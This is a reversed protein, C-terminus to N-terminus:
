RLYIQALLNERAALEIRSDEVDRFLTYLIQSSSLTAYQRMMATYASTFLAEDDKIVALRLVLPYAEYAEVTTAADGSLMDYRTYLFGTNLLTTQIWSYSLPDLEGVEALHVMTYLSPILEVETNSGAYYAYNGDGTYMWAYLPLVESIQAGKVISLWEDYKKAYEPFITAARKMALLDMGAIELGELSVLKDTGEKEDPAPEPTPTTEMIESVPIPTPRSLRDEARFDELKETKFLLKALDEIKTLLEANGWKDYYNMLARLYGATAQLSAEGNNKLLCSADEYLENGDYTASAGSTDPSLDAVPRYEMLYGNPDTLKEDIAKILKQADSKKGELIYTELLLVQDYADVYQTQFGPVDRTTGPIVVWDLIWPDVGRNKQLVELVRTYMYGKQMDSSNVIEHMPTTMNYSVNGTDVKKYFLSTRSLFFWGGIILALAAVAIGVIWFIKKNNNKVEKLSAM